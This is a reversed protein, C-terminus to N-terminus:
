IQAERKFIWLNQLLTGKDWAACSVPDLYCGWAELPTHEGLLWLGWQEWQWIGLISRVGVLMQPDKLRSQFVLKNGSIQNSCM